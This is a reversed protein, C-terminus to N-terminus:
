DSVSNIFEKIKKAYNISNLVGLNMKWSGTIYFEKSM